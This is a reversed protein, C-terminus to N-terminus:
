YKESKHIKVIIHKYICFILSFGFVIICVYQFFTFPGFAYISDARIYDLLFRFSSYLLIYFLLIEGKFVKKSKLLRLIIFIFVLAISSFLQTPYVKSSLHPFKMGWFSATPIGYCCGNFFCGIRGISQGFAVYAIMSDAIHLFDQNKFKIYIYASFFSLLFGTSFVLGGEYVKLIDVLNNAFKHWHLFVYGLRAGILGFILLIFALDLVLDPSINDRVAQKRALFISAWFACAICFGYTYINISGISFLIPKM